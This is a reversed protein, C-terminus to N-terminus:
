SVPPEFGTEVAYSVSDSYHWWEGSYALFGHKKMTNELLVANQTSIDDCDSYDRDAKRTFDDFGTPMQLETGDSFVLTVDVTNGRSHSSFGTNPNAVYTPDPYIEWLRFQASVPRFADWIKLGVGFSQLEEQVMQLKKVTGYRLYADTFNYIVSNVFNFKTAYKLDVIIGPIYDSVRVFVHDEPHEVVAAEITKELEEAGEGVAPDTANEHAEVSAVIAPATETPEQLVIPEEQERLDQERKPVPAVIEEEEKPVRSDSFRYLHCGTLLFATIIAYLLFQYRKM